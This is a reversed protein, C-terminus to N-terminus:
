KRSNQTVPSNKVNKTFVKNSIIKYFLVFLLFMRVRVLFSSFQILRSTAAKNKEFLLKCEATSNYSPWFFFYIQNLLLFQFDKLSCILASNKSSEKSYLWKRNQIFWLWETWNLHNETWIIKRCKSSCTRLYATMTKQEYTISKIWTM